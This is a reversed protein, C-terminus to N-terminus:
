ARVEEGFISEFLEDDTFKFADCPPHGCDSTIGTIEDVEIELYADDTSLAQEAERLADWCSALHFIAERLHSAILPMHERTVAIKAM